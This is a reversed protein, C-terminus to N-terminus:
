GATAFGSTEEKQSVGSSVSELSRQRPDQKFFIALLIAAIIMPAAFYYIISSIQTGFKLFLGLALPGVVAGSRGLAQVVGFGLSRVPTPFVEPALTYFVAIVGNIVLTELLQSGVLVKIPWHYQFSLGFCIFLAMGVITILLIAYKRQMREELWVGIIQAFPAVSFIILTYNFSRVLTFGQRVFITPLWVNMGWVAVYFCFLFFILLVGPAWFKGLLRLQQGFGLKFHEKPTVPAVLEIDTRGQRLALDNAIRGAEETRGKTLLWRISEPLFYRVAVILFVPAIGFWFISRWGWQPICWISLLAAVIWGVSFIFPMMGCFLHRYKRPAYEALLATSVPPEAGIGMGCIFRSMLLSHYSPAIATLFSGFAFVLLVWTFLPKRGFRDSLLAFVVTGTMFGFNGISAVGGAQAPNLHFEKIIGPLGYAVMQFDVGDLLNAVAVGIFFLWLFPTMPSEDLFEHYTMRVKRLTTATQESM